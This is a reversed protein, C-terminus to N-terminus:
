PLPAPEIGPPNLSQLPVQWRVIRSAAPNSSRAGAFEVESRVLGAICLRSEDVAHAGDTGQWILIPTQPTVLSGQGSWRLGALLRQASIGGCRMVRRGFSPAFVCAIARVTIEAPQEETHGTLCALLPGSNRLTVQSLSLSLPEDSRPSHDLRLVAGGGLYLVNTLEVSLAGATHCDLGAAM